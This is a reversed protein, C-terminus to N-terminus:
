VFGRKKAHKKAHKHALKHKHKPCGTPTITTTKHLVVGNQATLTTPMQLKATCLNGNAALASYPGQPLNLEFAIVRVDPVTNFTSSTIGTKSIFTEGHLDVTVGYGQLVIVLEPFKQSGNSVFYAPGSLAVPLIPTTATASGIVSAAPCGAPNADFVASPCAKQLTTLRSPLQKPLEVKVKAINAETPSGEVLRVRLSAGGLRSPKGSTSASMKPAFPLAACNAAQFRSSVNTSAGGTSDITGDVALPSCNTPNFTFEPRDILVNVTKIDLPIGDLISPLANAVITLQATIPDVHIAARVVVLGLNFPGAVAPVVVSLGYQGGGYAETIYVRGGEVWYPEAGDGVGVLTHGIESEPGCTGLSAQPEKCLTVKSLMGLLGPPLKVTIGGLQQEGDVRSFTLSFPSFSGAQNNVLGAAFGPNFAHTACPSGGPGSNISFSSERTVPAGGSWPTLVAKTTYTGCADPTVLPARPGSKLAVKLDSFALQPTNDFSVTLQGSVPDLDIHGPVKVRVGHGEVVLYLAWGVGRWRQLWCSTFRGL